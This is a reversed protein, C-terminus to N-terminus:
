YAVELREMVTIYKKRIIRLKELNTERSYIRAVDLIEKTYIAGLAADFNALQKDINNRVRQTIQVFMQWNVQRPLTVYFMSLDDLDKYIGEEM